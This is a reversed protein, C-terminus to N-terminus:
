NAHKSDHQTNKIHIGMENSLIRCQGVKALLRQRIPTFSFMEIRM